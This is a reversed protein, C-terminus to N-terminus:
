FEKMMWVLGTSNRNVVRFGFAKCVRQLGKLQTKMIAKKVGQSSTFDLIQQLKSKTLLKHRYPKFILLEIEKVESTLKKIGFLGIYTNKHNLGYFEAEEHFFRPCEREVIRPHIPSFNM